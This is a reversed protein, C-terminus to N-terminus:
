LVCATSGNDITRLSKSRKTHKWLLAQESSTKNAHNRMQLSLAVEESRVRVFAHVLLSGEVAEPVVGVLVDAVDGAAHRALQLLIVPLRAEIQAASYSKDPM